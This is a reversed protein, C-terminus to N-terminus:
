QRSPRQEKPKILAVVGWIFLGTLALNLALSLEAVTLAQNVIGYSLTVILVGAGVEGRPFLAIGLALRSRPSAEYRYVLSPFLKGLNSLLTIIVVHLILIGIGNPAVRFRPLSAGVLFMFASKVLGDLILQERKIPELFQHEHRFREPHYPDHPNYLMCGWVFAPLLVEAQVHVFHEALGNLVVLAVAYALLAAPQRPLRIRHLFAYALWLMIAMVPIAVLLSWQMGIIAIQLPIMLLITDVDDFIALVRAKKFLWTTGLGAAGLMTFLVGASTPAAFRAILLSHLVNIDMVWIFYAACFLWPFAAATMAILYDKGYSRLNKKDLTFELGVEIMVYALGVETLFTLQARVPEIDVFFALAMGGLLLVTFLIVRYM